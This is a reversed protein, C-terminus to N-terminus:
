LDFLLHKSLLLTCSCWWFWFSQYHNTKAMLFHHFLLIPMCAHMELIWLAPCRGSSPLCHCVQHIGYLFESSLHFCKSSQSAPHTSRIEAALPETAELMGSVSGALSPAFVLKHGRREALWCGDTGNPRFLWVHSFYFIEKHLPFVKFSPYARPALSNGSASTSLM